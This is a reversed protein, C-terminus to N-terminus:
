AGWDCAAHVHDRDTLHSSNAPRAVIGFGSLEVPESPRRRIVAVLAHMALAQNTTARDFRDCDVSIIVHRPRM